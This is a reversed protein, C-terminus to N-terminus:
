GESGIAATKEAVKEASDNIAADLKAEFEDKMVQTKFLTNDKLVTDKVSKGLLETWKMPDEVVILVYQYGDRKRYIRPSAGVINVDTVQRVIGENNIYSSLTAEDLNDGAEKFWNTMLSQINAEVTEAIKARGDAEATRRAVAENGIIKAMGVSALVDSPLTDMWEDGEYLEDNPNTAACGMTMLVLSTAALIKMSHKFM